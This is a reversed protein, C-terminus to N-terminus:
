RRVLGLFAGRAAVGLAAFIGLCSLCFGALQDDAGYHILYFIQTAITTVGPPMVLKSASLEGIGVALGVLGACLLSPWLTPLVVNWLTQLNGAGDVAAADTVAKSITSVGYWVILYVFPFCRITMAVTPVFLTDDYLWALFPSVDRNFLLLRILGLGIFPGPIVFCFTALLAALGQRWTKGRAWWALLTAMVLSLLVSTQSLIATYAIEQRYKRPSDAVLRLMKSASWSRLREGGDSDVVEIGAQYILNGIPILLLVSVTAAVIATAVWNVSGSSRERDITLNTVLPLLLKCLVLGALTVTVLTILIPAISLPLEDFRDNLVFQNFLVEAYSRYQYRDTVTIETTTVILVYLGAGLLVPLTMPITIRRFVQWPTADLSASELHSRPVALFGLQFIGFLWPIAALAHVIVAGRFGELPPDSLKQEILMSYWGGRGFGAEWSALQIYLPVFILMLLCSRWMGAWKVECHSLCYALVGAVPVSVCMVAIALWLTNLLLGTTERSTLLLCIAVVITAGLSLALEFKSLQLSRPRM